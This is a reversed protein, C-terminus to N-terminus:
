KSKYDKILKYFERGFENGSYIENIENSISNISTIKGDEEETEPDSAIETVLSIIKRSELDSIISEFYSSKLKDLEMIDRGIFSRPDDEQLTKKDYCGTKKYLTDLNYRDKIDGREYFVSLVKLHEENLSELIKSLYIKKDFNIKADEKILNTLFISYAKRKEERSEYQIKSLIEVLLQEFEPNKLRKKLDNLTININLERLKEEVSKLFEEVKKLRKENFDGEFIELVAGGFGLTVSNLGAKLIPYSKDNYFGIKRVM